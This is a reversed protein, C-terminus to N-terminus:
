IGRLLSSYVESKFGYSCVDHQVGYSFVVYRM